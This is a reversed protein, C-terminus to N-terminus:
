STVLTSGITLRTSIVKRYQPNDHTIHIYCSHLKRNMVIRWLESAVSQAVAAHCQLCSRRGTRAIKGNITPKFVTHATIIYFRGVTNCNAWSSFGYCLMCVSLSCLPMDFKRRIEEGNEHLKLQLLFQRQFTILHNLHLLWNQRKYSTSSITPPLACHTSTRKQKM